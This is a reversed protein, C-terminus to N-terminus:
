VHYAWALGLYGLLAGGVAVLVMVIASAGLTAAVALGLVAGFATRVIAAELPSRLREALYIVALFVGVLFAAFALRATKSTLSLYPLGVHVLLFLASFLVGFLVVM